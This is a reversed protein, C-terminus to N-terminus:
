KRGLVDKLFDIEISQQGVKKALRDAEQQKEQLEDKLRQDRKKDFVLAANDLFECKWKRLLNPAVGERAAIENVEHEGRIMELVLKAKEEATYSRRQM